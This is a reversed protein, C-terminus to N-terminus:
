KLLARLERAIPHGRMTDDLEGALREVGACLSFYRDEYKKAIERAENLERELQRSLKLLECYGNLPAAAEADTRPTESMEMQRESFLDRDLHVARAVHDAHPM